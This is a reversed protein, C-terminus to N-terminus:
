LIMLCLFASSCVGLTWVLKQETKYKDQLAELYANLENRKHNLGVKLAEPELPINEFCGSWLAKMETQIAIDKLYKMGNEYWLEGITASSRKLVDELVIEYFSRMMPLRERLIQHLAEEFSMRWECMFYTLKGLSLEMEKLCKIRHNREEYIGYSVGTGAILLWLIIIWKM